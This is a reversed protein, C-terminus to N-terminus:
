RPLEAHEWTGRKGKYESPKPDNLFYQGIAWTVRNLTNTPTHMGHKEEGRTFSVRAVVHRMGIPSHKSKHASVRLLYPARAPHRYYCSETSMAAHSFEFGAKKVLEIALHYAELYTIQSM